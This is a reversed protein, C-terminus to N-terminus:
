GVFRVTALQAVEEGAQDGEKILVAVTNVTWGGESTSHWLAPRGRMLYAV